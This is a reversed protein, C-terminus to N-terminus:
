AVVAFNAPDLGASASPLSLDLSLDFWRVFGHTAREVNGAGDFGRYPIRPDISLLAHGYAGVGAGFDALSDYEGAGAAAANRHGGGRPSRSSHLRGALLAVLAMAFSRDAPYYQPPGKPLFYTRCTSAAAERSPQNRWNRCASINVGNSVRLCWGTSHRIEKGKGLVAGVCKARARARAEEFLRASTANSPDWAAASTNVASISYPRVCDKAFGCSTPTPSM